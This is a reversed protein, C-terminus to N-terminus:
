VLHIHNPVVNVFRRGDTDVGVFSKTRRPDLMVPLRERSASILVLMILVRPPFAALAVVRDLFM